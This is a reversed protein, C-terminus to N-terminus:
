LQTETVALLYLVQAAVLLVFFVNMTVVKRTYRAMM